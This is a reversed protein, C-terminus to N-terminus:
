GMGWIGAPTFGRQIGAWGEEGLPSFLGRRDGTPPHCTPVFCIRVSLARKDNRPANLGSAIESIALKARLSLLHLM